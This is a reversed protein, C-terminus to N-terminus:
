GPIIHTVASAPDNPDTFTKVPAGERLLQPIANPGHRYDHLKWWDPRTAASWKTRIFSLDLSLNPMESHGVLLKSQDGPETSEYEALQITPKHREDLVTQVLGPVQELLQPSNAYLNQIACLAQMQNLQRIDSENAETTHSRKSAASTLEYANPDFLMVVSRPSIPCFAQFGHTDAGTTAGHLGQSLQNYFFAPNDSTLFRDTPATVLHPELDDMIPLQAEVSLKVAELQPFDYQVRTDGPAAGMADLLIPISQAYIQRIVEAESPTRSHQAAIFAFLDLFSQPDIEIHPLSQSERIRRCVRAFRQDWAQLVNETDQSAYYLRQQGQGKIGVDYRPTAAEIDYLHTLNPRSAWASLYFVPLFHHKKSRTLPIDQGVSRISTTNTPHRMPKTLPRITGHTSTPCLRTREAEMAPKANGIM